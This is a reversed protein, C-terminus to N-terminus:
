GEGGLTNEMEPAEAEARAKAARLRAARLIKIAPLNAKHRREIEARVLPDLVRDTSTGEAEVIEVLKDGIDDAL